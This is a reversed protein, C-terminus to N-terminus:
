IKEETIEKYPEIETMQLRQLIKPTFILALRSPSEGKLGVNEGPIKIRIKKKSKGEEFGLERLYGGMDKNTVGYYKENKM